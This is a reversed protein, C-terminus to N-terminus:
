PILTGSRTKIRIKSRIKITIGAEDRSPSSPLNLNPNLNHDPVSLLGAYRSVHHDSFLAIRGQRRWEAWAGFIDSPAKKWWPPDLLVRGFSDYFVEHGAHRYGGALWPLRTVCDEGDVVRFACSDLGAQFPWSDRFAADGVRPQGFTYLGSFPNSKACDMFRWAFLMALAGGLSHGTLWIRGGAAGRVAVDLADAVGALAAQFGAHVRCGSERALKVDLDTVWNRWDATGRFAVILDGDINSLVVRTDTSGDEIVHSLRSSGPLYADAAFGLLLRANEPDYCNPIPPNM